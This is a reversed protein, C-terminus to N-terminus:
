FKPYFVMSAEGCQNNKDKVMRVYGQEGWWTGWSNRVIWYATTGETGYGVLGVGHNLQDPSCASDDYIGEQYNQFSWQSADIAICLPGVTQVTTALKTETCNYVWVYDTVGTAIAKSADYQCEQDVAVYPYDAELMLKGNQNQGIYQLAYAMAGGNCGYCTTVCDVLNQESFSYLTGTRIAVHSEVAQCTSFTWCSGCQGQDKIPNVVNQDRWDVTAANPATAKPTFAKAQDAKMPKFGLLSRYEAPTFASFKNVAVKFSTKKANHEQILRKNALFIGLRLQYEDGVYFQNTDRMWSVFSQEEHKAFM